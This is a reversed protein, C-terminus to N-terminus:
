EFLLVHGFRETHIMILAFSLMDESFISLRNVVVKQNRLIQCYLVRLDETLFRFIVRM